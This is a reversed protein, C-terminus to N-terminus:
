VLKELGYIDLYADGFTQPITPKIKNSIGFYVGELIATIVSEPNADAGAVRHEIRREIGKNQPIRIATTRNNNGWSITSPTEKGAHLIRAYSDPTPLFSGLKEKMTALMGGISYLMIDSYNEGERYFLNKGNSDELHIHIHMGSAPKEPFPKAEFIAIANHKKATEIAIESARQLDEAFKSVYFSCDLKIEYQGKGREKEIEILDINAKKIANQIDSIIACVSQEDLDDGNNGHLYFEIEAAVVPVYGLETFLKLLEQIKKNSM